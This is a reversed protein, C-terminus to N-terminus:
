FKSLFKMPFTDSLILGDGFTISDGIFIYSNFNLNNLTLYNKIKTAIFDAGVSTPHVGDKRNVNAMCQMYSTSLNTPQSVNVFEQKLDYYLVNQETAVELIKERIAISTSDVDCDCALCFYSCAQNQEEELVPPFNLLLVQSGANKLSQVISTLNNKYQSPTRRQSATPHRWDNTGIMVVALECDNANIAPLRNIVDTTNNGSVGANIVKPKKSIGYTNLFYTELNSLDSASIVNTNNDLIAMESFLMKAGRLNWQGIFLNNNNINQSGTGTKIIGSVNLKSTASKEFIAYNSVLQQNNVLADLTNTSLNLIFDNTANTNYLHLFNTGADTYSAGGLLFINHYTFGNPEEIKYVIWGARKSLDTIGSISNLLELRNTGSFRISQLGGIGNTVITPNGVATLNNGNGTLDNLSNVVGNTSTIGDWARVYMNLSMNDKPNWTQAFTLNALLLILFVKKM